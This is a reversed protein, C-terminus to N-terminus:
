SAKRLASGDGAKFEILRAAQTGGTKGGSARGDVIADLRQVHSMSVEAEANLTESAAASEEATAATAQTGKEIDELARTIQSLGQTQQASADRVQDALERVKRIAETVSTIAASMQSVRDQGAQTAAMSEEILTATNKAAQASRQALNRVEDAVVAFGMGAEGARAAEVAANLALINTQFAIEDVTRLIKSVKHSADQISAMSTVMSSLAVNAQQVAAEADASWRAAEASNQANASTMSAMEAMAASTEELSAAQENASQSLTQSSAAVQAAAEFVQAVGERLRHAASTLGAGIARVMWVVVGGVVLALVCLGGLAWLSLRAQRQAGAVHEEFRAKQGAEIEAAIAQNALMLEQTKASLKQMTAPSTMDSTEDHCALCGTEWAKMGETLKAVRAKDAEGPLMDQLAKADKHASEITTKVRDHWTTVGESDNAVSAVIIAREAAFMDTNYAQLAGALRARTAVATAEDQEKKMARSLWAAVGVAIVLCLFVTGFAGLLKITLDLRTRMAM